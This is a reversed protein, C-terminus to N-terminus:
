GLRRLVRELREPDADDAVAELAERAAPHAVAEAAVRIREPPEGAIRLAMAAAVRQELPARPNELLAGTEETTLAASRYAPDEVARAIAARWEAVSRGERALVARGEPAATSTALRANALRGFALCRQADLSVGALPVTEGSRLAIVPRWGEHIAVIESRPLFRRTVGRTLFIGDSGVTVVPPAAFRRAAEYLVIAFIPLLGTVLAVPALGGGGLSVLFAIPLAVLMNSVFYSVWAIPLHLLRRSPAALAISVRRGGPGFGLAAVLRDAVDPDQLQVAAVDGDLTEIEVTPAVGTAVPRDVVYASKVQAASFTRVSGGHRLVVGSPTVEISGKAVSKTTWLVITAIAFALACIWGLGSLGAAVVFLEDMEVFRLGGVLTSLVFAIKAAKSTVRSM